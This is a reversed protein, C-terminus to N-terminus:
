REALASRTGLGDARGSAVDPRPRRRARYLILITLILWLSAVVPSSGLPLALIGGPKVLISGVALSAVL